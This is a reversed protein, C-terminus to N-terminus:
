KKLLGVTVVYKSGKDHAFGDRGNLALIAHMAERNYFPM